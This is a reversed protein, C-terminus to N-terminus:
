TTTVKVAQGTAQSLGAELASRLISHGAKKETPEVAVIATLQAHATSSALLCLGLVFPVWRMRVSQSM